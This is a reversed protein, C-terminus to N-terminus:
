LKERFVLNILTNRRRGKSGLLDQSNVLGVSQIVCKCFNTNSLCCQSPVRHEQTCLSFLSKDRDHTSQASSTALVAPLFGIKKEKQGLCEFAAAALLAAPFSEHWPEWPEGLAGLAGGAGPAPLM